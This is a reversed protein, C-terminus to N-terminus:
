FMRLAFSTQHLRLFHKGYSSNFYINWHNGTFM